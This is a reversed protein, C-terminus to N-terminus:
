APNERSAPTVSTMQHPLLSSVVSISGTATRELRLQVWASGNLESELRAQAVVELFSGYAGPSGMLIQPCWRINTVPRLGDARGPSDPSRATM